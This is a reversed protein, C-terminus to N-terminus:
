TIDGVLWKRERRREVGSANVKSKGNIASEDIQSEPERRRTQLANVPRRPHVAPFAHRISPQKATYRVSEIEADHM